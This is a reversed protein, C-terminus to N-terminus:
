SGFLSAGIIYVPRNKYKKSIDMEIEKILEKNKQQILKLKPVLCSHENALEQKKNTVAIQSNIMKEINNIKQSFLSELKNLYKPSHKLHLLHQVIPDNIRQKIFKTIDLMAAIETKSENLEGGLQVSLMSNSEHSLELLRMSLFSGLELIDNMFENRTKYNDLITLAENGRAVNGDIQPSEVIIGSEELTIGYDVAESPDNLDGWDIEEDDVTSDQNTDDMNIVPEEIKSPEEGYLYEYYTTNGNSIIYQLMPLNTDTGSIHTVFKSFYINGKKLRKANDVVDKYIESLDKLKDVLTRKINDGVISFQKRLTELDKKCTQISKSYDEIKKDCDAQGSQTKAIQKKMAPIHYKINQVMLDAAEALYVNDKLYLREIEQWDKMRKSGYSGFLNKSDAETEKLIEIIHKCHFYNIYTGSLLKVIEKHEPMDQIAMNIKERIPQVYKHWDKKCHKRSLLWEILKQAHIEIPISSEM